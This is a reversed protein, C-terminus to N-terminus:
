KRGDMWECSKQSSQKTLSNVGVGYSKWSPASQVSSQEWHAWYRRLPAHYTSAHWITEHM